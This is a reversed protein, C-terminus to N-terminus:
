QYEFYVISASVSVANGGDGTSITLNDMMCRYESDCLERLVSSATDYDPCSFSMSITRRVIPHETDVAGFSLSYNSTKGLVANLEFMVQQLNDYPAIGVPEKKGSLIEELETEMAHKRELLAKAVEIEAKADEAQIKIDAIKETTPIYFLFIYSSAVILLILIMLLFHERSSLKRRM